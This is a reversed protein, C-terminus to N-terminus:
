ATVHHQEVAHKRGLRYAVVGAVLTLTAWLLDPPTGRSRGAVVTGAARLEPDHSITRTNSCSSVRLSGADKGHAFVIYRAGPRLKMGCASGDSESYVWQTEFVEGKYAEEVALGYGNDGGSLLGGTSDVVRGSFVADYDRLAAKDPGPMECSCAFASPAAVLMPATMIVGAILLRLVRMSATDRRVLTIHNTGARAYSSTITFISTPRRSISPDPAASGPETTFPLGGATFSSRAAVDGCGPDANQRPLSGRIHAAM